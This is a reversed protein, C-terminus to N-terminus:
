HSIFSNLAPAKGGDALFFFSEKFFGILEALDLAKM